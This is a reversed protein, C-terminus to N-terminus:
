GNIVTFHLSPVGTSTSDPICALAFCSTEYVVPGGLLDWAQADLGNAIRVDFVGLTRAVIVNVTGTTAVVGGVVITDIKQVGADGAQLPMFVIRKTTFANVSVAGTTRGAVGVANTYTVAVTTATASVAANIELWIELGAYSGGPCRAAYSPQSALTTTALALLSVSGVHFLRDYLICGSAVSNRYAANSLYGTTGVGYANVIPSGITADTPVIGTTTNGVALVGAGPSGAEAWLSFPTAAVSVAASTKRIMTAQKTAAFWGDASTIAM